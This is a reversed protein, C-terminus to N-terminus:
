QCMLIKANGSLVQVSGSFQTGTVYDKCAKVLAQTQTGTTSNVIVLGKDFERTYLGNSEVKFPKGEGLNLEKLKTLISDPFTQYWMMGKGKDRVLLMAGVQLWRDGWEGQFVPNAHRNQVMDHAVNIYNKIRNLPCLKGGTESMWQEFLVYDVKNMWSGFFSVDPFYFGEATVDSWGNIFIKINNQDSWARYNDFASLVSAYRSAKTMGPPNCTWWWPMGYGLGNDFFGVTWGKSVNTGIFQSGGVAVPVQLFMDFWFKDWAPNGINPAIEQIVGVSNKPGYQNRAFDGNSCKLFANPINNKQYAWVYSLYGLNWSNPSIDTYGWNNYPGYLINPNVQKLYPGWSADGQRWWDLIIKSNQAIMAARARQATTAANQNVNPDYYFTTVIEVIGDPSVTPAPVPTPTPTPVPTPVPTPAPTPCVVPPPCPACCSDCAPPTPCSNCKVSGSYNFTDGPNITQAHACQAPFLAIGLIMVFLIGMLVAHTTIQFSQKGKM